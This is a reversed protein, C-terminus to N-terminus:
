PMRAAKRFVTALWPQQDRPKGEPRFYYTIEEFGAATVIALWRALDHYAGYRDGNWGETDGGRPNSSFLVGRPKLATCIQGLVRPLHATPVHFLSANAFVGDFRGEGLSLALFDQELVECGSHKRAMACFSACGDLGVAEHGMSRFYALDRGPGCGFDLISFPPSSEISGLLATYNQSVDHDRTGQWFAGANAEYHAITRGTESTVAVL